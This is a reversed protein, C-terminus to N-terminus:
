LLFRVDEEVIREIEEKTYKMCPIEKCGIDRCPVCPLIGKKYYIKNKVGYYGGDRLNPNISGFFAKSPVKLLSAIHFIGTDSTYVYSCQKILAPIEEVNLSLGIDFINEKKEFISLDLDQSNGILFVKKGRKSELDIIKYGVEKPISRINCTGDMCIVIKEAETEGLIGKIKRESDKDIYYEPFVPSLGETNLSELFKIIRHVDRKDEYEVYKVWNKVYSHREKLVSIKDENNLNNKESYLFNYEINIPLVEDVCSFGNVFAMYIPKTMYSIKINPFKNKLAQLAFMSMVIDGIGGDRIFLIDVGQTLKTLYRDQDARKLYAEELKKAYIKESENFDIQFNMAPGDTTLNGHHHIFIDMALIPYHNKYVAKDNLLKCESRRRIFDFDLGGCEFFLKSNFLTCFCCFEQSINFFEKNDLEILQSYSDFGNFKEYVLNINEEIQNKTMFSKSSLKNKVFLEKVEEDYKTPTNETCYNTRPFICSWKIDNQGEINKKHLLIKTLWNKSVFVDNHLIVFSDSDKLHIKIADMYAFSVGLSDSYRIWEFDINKSQIFEKISDSVSQESGNDIVILRYDAKTNEYLYEVSKLTWYKQNKFM